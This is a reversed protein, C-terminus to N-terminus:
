ETIYSISGDFMNIYFVTIMDNSENRCQIRWCPIGKFEAYDTEYAIMQQRYIMEISQVEYRSNNGIRDSVIDMASNLSVVEDSKNGTEEVTFRNGSGILEDVDDTDVMIVRGSDVWWSLLAQSEFCPEYEFMLGKFKRTMELCICYNGNKLQYVEVQRVKKEVDEATDYPICEAWYYEAFEIADGISISGNDLEYVDDLNDGNPYYTAVSDFETTPNENFTDALKM